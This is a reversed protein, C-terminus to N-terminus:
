KPRVKYKTIRNCRPCAYRRAVISATTAEYSDGVFKGRRHGMIWCIPRLLIRLNMM